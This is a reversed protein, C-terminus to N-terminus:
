FALAMKPMIHKVITFVIYATLSMPLVFKFGKRVDGYMVVGIMMAASAAQAAVYFSLAKIVGRIEEIPFQIDYGAATSIMVDPLAAVVGMVFPGAILSAMALFSIQQSTLSKRERQVTRVARMDDAVEDLVDSLPGGFEIGEVLLRVAREVEKSGGRKSFALLAEKLPRGRRMELMIQSFEESLAGYEAEAVEKIVGEIILGARMSVSMHHLADPLAEKVQNRRRGILISPVAFIMVLCIFYAIVGAVFGIVVTGILFLVFGFFVFIGIWERALFNVRAEILMAETRNLLRKPVLFVPIKVKKLIKLKEKMM